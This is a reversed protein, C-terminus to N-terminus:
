KLMQKSGVEAVAEEEMVNAQQSLRWAFYGRSSTQLILNESVRCICSCGNAFTVSGLAQATGTKKFNNITNM